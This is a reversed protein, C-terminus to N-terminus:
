EGAVCVSCLHEPVCSCVELTHRSHFQVRDAVLRGTEHQIFSKLNGYTTFLQQEPLAARQAVGEASDM